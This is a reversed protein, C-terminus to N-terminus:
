FEAGRRITIKNSSLVLSTDVRYSIIINKVHIPRPRFLIQRLVDYLDKLLQDLRKYHDETEEDSPLNFPIAM